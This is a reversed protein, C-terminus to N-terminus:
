LSDIHSAINIQPKALRRRSIGVDLDTVVTGANRGFMAGLNKFRIKRGVFLPSTKTEGDDLLDHQIMAPLNRDHGVFWFARKEADIMNLDARSSVNRAFM